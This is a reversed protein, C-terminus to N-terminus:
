ADREQVVEIHRRTMVWRGLLYVVGVALIAAFILPTATRHVDMLAQAREGVLSGVLLFFASWTATSVGVCLAFTRFRVNFSGAAVTIPVRFGPIHRGIILAWPGWRDFWREAREIRGPTLHLMAGVRGAVLRRGWRRSIWYLNTSGLLVAITLGLWALLAPTWNDAVHHGLYMVFFDGPVPMPVGSEELYLLGVAALPGHERLVDGTAFAGAPLSWGPSLELVGAAVVLLIAGGTAAALLVASHRSVISKM